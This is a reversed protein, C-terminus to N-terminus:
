LRINTKRRQLLIALEKYEEYGNKAIFDMTRLTSGYSSGSHSMSTEMIKERIRNLEVTDSFMFGKREDVTFDRLWDWLNCETIALHANRYRERITHDEIFEFEGDGYYRMRCNEINQM